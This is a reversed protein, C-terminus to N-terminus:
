KLYPNIPCAMNIVIYGIHIFRFNLSFKQINNRFKNLVQYISPHNNYIM